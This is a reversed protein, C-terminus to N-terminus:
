IKSLCGWKEASLTAEYEEAPLDGYQVWNKTAEYEKAPLDRYQVPEEPCHEDEDEENEGCDESPVSPGLPLLLLHFCIKDDSRINLVGDAFTQLM